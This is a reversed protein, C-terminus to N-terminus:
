LLMVLVTARAHVRSASAFRSCHRVFRAPIALASCVFRAHLSVKAVVLPLISGFTGHVSSDTTEGRHVSGAGVAMSMCNM